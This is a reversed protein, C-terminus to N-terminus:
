LYQLQEKFIVTMVYICYIQCPSGLSVYTESEAKGKEVEQVLKSEEM